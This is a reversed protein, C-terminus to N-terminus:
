RLGADRYPDMASDGPDSPKYRVAPPLDKMSRLLDQADIANGFVQTYVGGYTEGAVTYAYTATLEYLQRRGRQVAEVSGGEIRAAVWPWSQSRRRRFWRWFIPALSFIWMPAVILIPNLRSHRPDSHHALDWALVGFLVISIGVGLLLPVARKTAVV